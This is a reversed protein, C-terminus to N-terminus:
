FKKEGDFDEVDNILNLLIRIREDNYDSSEIKHILELKLLSAPKKNEPIERYNTRGLLYDVSVNFYDAIKILSETDPLKDKKWTFFTSKGLDLESVLAKITTHHEKILAKIRLYTEM